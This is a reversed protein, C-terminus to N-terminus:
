PYSDLLALPTNADSPGGADNIIHAITGIGGGLSFTIM